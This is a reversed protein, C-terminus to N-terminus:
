RKQFVNSVVGISTSAGFVVEVVSVGAFSFTAFVVGVGVGVVSVVVTGFTAGEEVLEDVDTGVSDAVELFALFAVSDGGSV